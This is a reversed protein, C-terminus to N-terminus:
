EMNEQLFEDLTKKGVNEPFNETVICRGEIRNRVWRLAEAQAEEVTVGSHAPTVIFQQTDEGTLADVERKFEPTLINMGPLLPTDETGEKVRM